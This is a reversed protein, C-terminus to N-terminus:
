IGASRPKPSAGKPCARGLELSQRRAELIRLITKDSDGRDHSPSDGYLELLSKSNMGTCDLSCGLGVLACFAGACKFYAALAIPPSGDASPLQPDAGLKALLAIMEPFDEMAAVHMASFGDKDAGDPCAGGLTAIAQALELAVPGCSEACAMLATNGHRDAANWDFGAGRLAEVAAPALSRLADPLNMCAHVFYAGTPGDACSEAMAQLIDAPNGSQLALDFRPAAPM